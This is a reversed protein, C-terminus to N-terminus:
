KGKGKGPGGKGKGPGKGGEKESDKSKGKDGLLVKPNEVVKDGERLGEIVEAMKDNALGVRIEKEKPGDDTMIFIKRKDGLEPGGIVAQVPVALVNDHPNEVQITVEASMGPRLGDLYEDIVVVTQYVKVDSTFFDQSAVSAKSHVHGSLPKEPFADVRIRAAQGHASLVSDNDHFNQKIPDYVGDDLLIMTGLQPLLTGNILAAARVKESFHTPKFEDGKIRSILAEHIRAVVQMKKLNPIRMLKQGERVPEGQAIISQQSGGGFRSQEPTYYVVLGEQPAHIRCMKIQKEIVALRNKEQKLTLKKTNLDSATQRRTADLAREANEMVECFNSADKHAQYTVLQRKETRLKKLAEKASALKSEDAQAQSQTVYGKIAMRQSYAARDKWQEYDGQASEIRGNVDELLQQYQGDLSQYDSRRSALFANVDKKIEDVFHQRQKTSLRAFTGLPLGLYKELDIEASRLDSLAKATLVREDAEAKVLATEATSVAIIQTTQQDELAASDLEMIFKGESVETGDDIVTKITTAFNGGKTAKVMCTVEKNESSELAGREVVTLDLSEFKVTHLILDPRNTKNGGALMATAGAAAGVVIAGAVLWWFRAKRGARKGVRDTAREALSDSPTGNPLPPLASLSRSPSPSGNPHTETAPHHSPEPHPTPTMSM